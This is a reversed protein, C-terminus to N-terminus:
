LNCITSKGVNAIRNKIIQEAALSSVNVSISIIENDLRSSKKAKPALFDFTEAFTKRSCNSNNCFMKRNNIIVIVKYGQIPLDQFSKKYYPHVKDSEEGCYSCKVVQRHSIIEIYITSVIIEHNIYELNNDLLKILEDM